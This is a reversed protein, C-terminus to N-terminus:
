RDEAARREGDDPAAVSEVDIPERVTGLRLADSQGMAAFFSQALQRIASDGLILTSFGDDPRAIPVPPPAEPTPMRGLFRDAVYICMTANPPQQYIRANGKNDFQRIQVGAVLERIAPILDERALQELDEIIQNSILKKLPKTRPRGSGPRAGGRKSKTPKPASQAAV